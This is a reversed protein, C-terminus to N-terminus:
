ALAGSSLHLTVAENWSGVLLFETKLLNTKLGLKLAWVKIACDATLMIDDAFDLDTIYLLLILALESDKQSSFGLPNILSLM